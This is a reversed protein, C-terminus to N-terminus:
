EWYYVKFYFQDRNRFLRQLRRALALHLTYGTDDIYCSCRCKTSVCRPTVKYSDTVPRDYAIFQVTHVGRPLEFLKSLEDLCVFADGRRNLVEKGFDPHSQIKYPVTQDIIM